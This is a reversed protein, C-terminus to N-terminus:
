DHELRSSNAQQRLQWHRKRHCNACLVDCKAIEELLRGQRWGQYCFYSPLFDKRSPDRHHFDLTAPHNEGCVSGALGRKFERFWTVVRQKYKKVKARSKEKNRAYWARNYARREEVDVLRKM